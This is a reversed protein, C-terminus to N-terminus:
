KVKLSQNPYILNSTLGNLAKLEEVTMGHMTAIRWLSDGPKILYTKEEQKNVKKEMDNNSSIIVLQNPHIVSTLKLNNWRLFDDLKLGFKAVIGYISDGRQIKYNRVSTYDVKPKETAIVKHQETEVKEKVTKSVILDQGVFILNSTLNNWDKLDQVTVGYQTAIKYLYDGKQVKYLNTLDKDYIIRKDEKNVVKDFRTLNYTQIIRDLKTHYTTDTAYRGTLHRTADQYSNTNSLFAGAYYLGNGFNVNKLVRVYNELSEKYSPYKRFKENVTYLNGNGDDELTPFVVSEGNYNGKIGFLNYNPALSLKSRGWNSELIAQAIMVSAYLDNESALKRSTEGIQNIFEKKYDLESAHVTGGSVGVHSIIGSSITAVTMFPTTVQQVVGIDKKRRKNRRKFIM